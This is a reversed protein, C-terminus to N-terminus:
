PQSRPPNRLRIEWIRLDETQTSLLRASLESLSQETETPPVSPAPELGAIGRLTSEVRSPSIEIAAASSARTLRAIEQALSTLPEVSAILVITEEGGTSNVTWYQEARDIAHAEASGARGPLRHRVDGPIPNTLELEPLPFLVHRRGQRDENLVYAHFPRTAEVELFLRDGLELRSGSALREEVGAGLRFLSADISFPPAAQFFRTGLLGVIALLVVAALVPALAQRSKGVSRVEPKPEQAPSVLPALAHEMEGATLFREEPRAALAREVVSVFSVPLDPRVDRLSTHGGHRHRESLERMTEAEVPYRGSVLRYLLVGLAYLDSASTADRGELMEPAM